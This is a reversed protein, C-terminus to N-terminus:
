KSLVYLLDKREAVWAVSEVHMTHIAFLLATIFAIINSRALLRIFLFVLLTNILHLIINTTHYVKPNLKDYSYEIAYSLMTLPHYNGMGMICATKLAFIKSIHAADLKQIDKDITIYNKDDWGTLTNKLAPSYVIYTAVLMAIIIAIWKGNLKDNNVIVSKKPIVKKINNQKPKQM